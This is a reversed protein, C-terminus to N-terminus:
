LPDILLAVSQAPIVHPFPAVAHAPLHLLLLELDGVVGSLLSQPRV